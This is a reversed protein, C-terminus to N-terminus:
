LRYYRIALRFALSANQLWGQKGRYDAAYTLPGGDVASSRSGDLTVTAGVSATQDPGADAVPPTNAGVPCTISVVLFSGPPGALGVLLTNRSQLTIAKELRAVTKKFDAPGAVVTGNLTLTASTVRTTNSDGNQVILKCHTDAHPPLTFARTVSTGRLFQEPGFATPTPDASFVTSSFLLWLATGLAALVGFWSLDRNRM